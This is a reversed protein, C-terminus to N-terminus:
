KIPIKNRIKTSKTSVCFILEWSHSSLSFRVVSPANRHNQLAIIPHNRGGGFKKRKRYESPSMGCFMKFQQGFYSVNDIGVRECIQNVKMNTTELLRKAEDIRQSIIYHSVTDGTSQKFILSLYGPSLFVMDALSELNIKESLHAKIYSKVLAIDKRIQKDDTAINEEYICLNEEIINYLESLSGAEFLKEVQQKGLGYVSGHAANYLELVIEAFVFKVFTESDSKNQFMMLKLHGYEKRVLEIDRKRIYMLLRGICESRESEDREVLEDDDEYYIGNNDAFFRNEMLKLLRQCSDHIEYIDSIGSGVAIYCQQGYVETLMYYIGEAMYGSRSYHNEWLLILVYNDGLSVAEARSAFREKIRGIVRDANEEWFASDVWLLIINSVLGVTNLDNMQAFSVLEDMYQRNGTAIYQSLLFGYMFVTMQNKVEENKRSDHIECIIQAMCMKIEVPAVPKLIYREVGHEIAMRASDFDRQRSVIVIHIHPNVGKEKAYRIIDTGNEVSDCLETLMIDIRREGLLQAAKQPNAVEMIEYIFDSDVSEIITKLEQRDKNNSDLILINLKEM